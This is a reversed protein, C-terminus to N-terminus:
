VGAPIRVSFTSGKGIESDCWVQGGHFDVIKKVMYLGFGSGHIGSKKANAARQFGTFIAQQFQKPVGIGQDKFTFLRTPGQDEYGVTVTSGQPSYKIANSILNEFVLRLREADARVIIKQNPAVMPNLTINKMHALMASHEIAKMLTPAIDVVRLDDPRMVGHETSTAILFTNTLDILSRVREYLQNVTAHAAPSLTPDRQLSSLTWRISTLPSRLEHASAAVFDSKMALFEDERQRERYLVGVIILSSITTTVLLAVSLTFASPHLAEPILAGAVSVYPRFTSVPVSESVDTAMLAPDSFAHALYLYTAVALILIVIIGLSFAIARKPSNQVRAM